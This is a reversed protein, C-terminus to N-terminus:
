LMLFLWAQRDASLGRALGPVYAREPSGDRPREITLHEDTPLIPEMFIKDTVEFLADLRNSATEDPGFVRFNALNANLKMIDRLFRGLVRTAEAFETGPKPSKSQIIEFIRCLWIKLCCAATLMRIQAWGNRCWSTCPGGIGSRTQRESDFLEEPRYSKM